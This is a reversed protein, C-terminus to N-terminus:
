GVINGGKFGNFIANDEARAVQEAAKVVSELDLMAGRAACDLEMISLEFPMRLEILPAVERVGWPVGLGGDHKIELRGTNVAAHQWGHPGDVDVIKRGALRLRLVRAAEDDIQKWAEPTIPALKRKLLDM